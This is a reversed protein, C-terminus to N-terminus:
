GPAWRTGSSTFPLQQPVARKTACSIRQQWRVFARRLTEYPIPRQRDSRSPFLWPTGGPCIQRVHDQQTRIAEVARASLPLQHEARMKASAFRLCPWGASDALLPDFPLACADGARLGTETILVILSRYPARLRALNEESELQGMVFEPIFRPLPQPRSPLEDLYLAARAPLGPMWGHRHCADLFGRLVVLYTNTTNGSLEPAATIWSLYHELVERTIGGPATVDPHQQTLFTAFWRLAREDISVSAFAKGAGLRYRCARKVAQRLWPQEIHDFRIETLKPSPRVGLVMSRWVDGAFETEADTDDALDRLHRWAYRLQGMARGGTDSLGHQHALMTWRPLTHDLLSAARAAVVLVVLRNIMTPILRVAREDHRCQISYAIELRVQQSLGRLDFADVRDSWSKLPGATAAFAAVDPRGSSRWRGYHGNCLM